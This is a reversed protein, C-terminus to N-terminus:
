AARARTGLWPALMKAVAVSPTREEGLTAEVADCAAVLTPRRDLADALAQAIRQAHADRQLLETFARRGLLVNPLAVNPTTLLVRAALETTMGVRYAIVPVARALAAELSATGSACLTADFARLVGMAGVRPDVDFTAVRRSACLAHLWRRTPDDLSSAVLVRADVSAREARVREYADLMPSLLRRVEHPRSGPLLAVAAAYPTMGLTDRAANRDLPTTELAPHGVYHADVGAERWISAEFPLVVAMRDISRRLSMTRSARWAWVQPAGYWLVRVGAARLHPALRSNFETYNVLLAARPRRSRAARVVARWARMLNWARAGAEGVGLATSARLDSALKVGQSALAPGGLGFADVAPLRAVVASAARDGSAEGAVVLLSTM